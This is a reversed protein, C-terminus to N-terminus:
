QPPTLTKKTGDPLEIEVEQGRMGLIKYNKDKEPDLTFTQGRSRIFDPTRVGTVPKVWKYRFTATSDPSDVLKKLPLIIKEGTEKNLITVQSVDETTGDKGPIEKHLYSDVKFKTGPIDEGVPVYKTQNKVDVTNIQATVDSPKKVNAPVDLSKLILRFPVYTVKVLELKTHYPPHSNPDKPDTSDDPLPKGDAGMVPQPPDSMDLHSRGDLGNWEELLTFGDGDTDDNLVTPSLVNFGYKEIWANPVPPHFSGDGPRKLKGDVNVYTKSIFLKSGAKDPNPWKVPTEIATKANDLTKTNLEDVKASSISGGRSSAFQSDFGSVKTWLLATMAIGLIAVVALSLQAPNKKIWDM